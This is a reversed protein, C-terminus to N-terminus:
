CAISCIPILTAFIRYICMNTSRTQSKTSRSSAQMTVDAHTKASTLVNCQQQPQFKKSGRTFFDALIVETPSVSLPPFPCASTHLIQFYSSLLLLFPRPYQCRAKQLEFSEVHPPLLGRVKLQGRLDDGHSTDFDSPSHSRSPHTSAM